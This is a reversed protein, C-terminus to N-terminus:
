EGSKSKNQNSYFIDIINKIFYLLMLFGSIPIISYVYGMPIGLAPSIQFMMVNAMKSGQIIMILIFALGCLEVIVNLVTGAAKGELKVSLLKVAMHGKDGIILASGIFVTWVFLFRAIEESWSFSHNFLYRAIVQLFIIVLMAAISIVSLGYLFKRTKDLVLTLLRYM